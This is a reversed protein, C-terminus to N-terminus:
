DEFSWSKAIKRYAAVPLERKQLLTEYVHLMRYDPKGAATLRPSVRGVHVVYDNMASPIQLVGGVVKIAPSGITSHVKSGKYHGSMHKSLRSAATASPAMGIHVAKSPKTKHGVRYLTQAGKRFFPRVASPMPGSNGTVARWAKDLNANNSRVLRKTRLYHALKLLRPLPLRGRWGKWGPLPLAGAPTGFTRGAEFRERLSSRRMRCKCCSCGLQGHSSPPGSPHFHRAHITM